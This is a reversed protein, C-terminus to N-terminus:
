NPVDKYYLLFSESGRNKNATTFDYVNCKTDDGLEPNRLFLSLATGDNFTKTTLFQVPFGYSSCDPDKVIPESVVKKNPSTQIQWLNVIAEKHGPTVNKLITIDVDIGPYYTSEPTEPDSIPTANLLTFQGTSFNLQLRVNEYLTVDVACTPILLEGVVRDFNNVPLNSVPTANLLTFTGTSFNLQLKVNEYLEVNDVSAKPIVLIGSEKNFTPRDSDAFIVM